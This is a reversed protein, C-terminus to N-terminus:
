IVGLNTIERDSLGYYFGDEEDLEYLKYPNGAANLPAGCFGTKKEDPIEAWTIYKPM